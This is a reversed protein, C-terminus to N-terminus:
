AGLALFVMREFEYLYYTRTDTLVDVKTFFPGGKIFNPIFPLASDIKM